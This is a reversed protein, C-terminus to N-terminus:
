LEESCEPHLKPIKSLLLVHLGSPGPISCSVKINQMNHYLTLMRIESGVRDNTFLHGVVTLHKFLAMFSVLPCHNVLLKGPVVQM